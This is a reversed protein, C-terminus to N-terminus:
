PNSKDPLSTSPVSSIEEDGQGHDCGNEGGKTIKIRHGYVYIHKLLAPHDQFNINCDECGFERYTKMRRKKKRKGKLAICTWM